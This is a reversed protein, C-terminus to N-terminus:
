RSRCWRLLQPFGKFTHPELLLTGSPRLAAACKGVLRKADDPPFVNFEGWIMMVLDFGDGFEAARVDEHVYQIALGAETARGKAHAVSAPSYDIGVCSHGLAALRHLYM